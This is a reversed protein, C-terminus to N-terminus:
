EGGEREGSPVRYVYIETGRRDRLKLVRAGAGEDAWFTNSVLLAGPRMERRAKAILRSMPAPSLFAYVLDFSGLDMAFLDGRRVRVRKGHAFSRLGTVLALLPSAEMAVIDAGPVGRALALTAAGTGAGLDAIRRVGHRRAIAAVCRGARVGTLYLPARSQGLAGSFIGVAALAALAFFVPDLGAYLSALAIGPGALTMMTWGPTHGLVFRGVLAAFAGASVYLGAIALPGSGPFARGGALIATVIAAQLAASGLLTLSPRRSRSNRM